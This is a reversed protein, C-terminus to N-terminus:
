RRGAFGASPGRFVQGYSWEDAHLSAGEGDRTELVNTVGSRGPIRRRTDSWSTVPMVAGRPCPKTCGVGVHAGCIHDTNLIGANV